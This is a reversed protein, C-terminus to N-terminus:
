LDDWDVLPWSIGNLLKLAKPNFSSPGTVICDRLNYRGSLFVATCNARVETDGVSARGFSAKFKVILNDTNGWFISGATARASLGKHIEVGTFDLGKETNMIMMKEYVAKSIAAPMSEVQYKFPAFDAWANLATFLSLILVYKM